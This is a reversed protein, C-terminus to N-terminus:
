KQPLESKIYAKLEELDQIMKNIKKLPNIKYALQPENINDPSKDEVIWNSVDADPFYKSIKLIFTPSIKDQNLYRSILSESYNEMRRSIERNDLGLENYFYAKAKDSFGM